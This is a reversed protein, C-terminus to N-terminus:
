DIRCTPVFFLNERKVRPRLAVLQPDARNKNITNKQTAITRYAHYLSVISLTIRRGEQFTGTKTLTIDNVKIAGNDQGQTM